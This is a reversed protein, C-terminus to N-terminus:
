YATNAPGYFADGCHLCVLSADVYSQIGIEKARRGFSVDEGIGTGLPTFFGYPKGPKSPKCEPWRGNDIERKMEEFVSRHMRLFGTAVWDEKKLDKHENRHFKANEESSAFASAVQAKGRPSRGFYLGGVIRKDDGHSMIRSIGNFSASRAELKAGYKENFLAANGCPPIIDDDCFLFQPSDTTTLAKHVLVNRSEHILTRHEMIMGIKEPGYKAYNAFLSFHARGSFSRYVPLLM